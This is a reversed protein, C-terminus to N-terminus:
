EDLAVESEGLDEPPGDVIDLAERAMEDSSFTSYLQDLDVIDVNKLLRKEVLYDKLDINERLLIRNIEKYKSLDANAKTLMERQTAVMDAYESEDLRLQKLISANSMDMVQQMGKCTAMDFGNVEGARLNLDKIKKLKGTWTNEGKKTGKNNKLSICSEAALSTIQKTLNVKSDQLAKIQPGNDRISVYDKMLRAITDDIKSQQLFARVITICSSTRMMDDNGNEDSDLLGVLQSYLFPQDNVDEKEFPDYGLLRIVDGKNQMFDAQTNFNDRNNVVEDLAVAEASLYPTKVVIHDSDVFTMGAYNRMAINKVYCSWLNRKRAGLADKSTEQVSANYVVELFPKNLYQLALIISDRTPDHYEGRADKRCALDYACQKCIPTIGTTILPDSSAFFHTKPKITGCMYCYGSDEKIQRIKGELEQIRARMKAPTLKEPDEEAPKMMRQADTPRGRKKPPTVEIADDMIDKMLKDAASPRGRKKATTSKKATAM